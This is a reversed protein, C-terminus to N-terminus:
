SNFFGELSPNLFVSVKERDEEAARDWLMNAYALKSEWLEPKYKEAVAATLEAVFAMYIRRPADLTQGGVPDADQVERMRYAIFAYTSNPPPVQWVVITPQLTRQFLYTTPRGEDGKVSIGAYDTRSVAGLITDQPTAGTPQTNVALQGGNMFQQDTTAAAGGPAFTFSYSTPASLVTYPGELVFGGVTTDIAPDYSDGAHLGHNPLYATVTPSGAATVFCTTAGQNQQTELAPVTAAFQVLDPSLVADVISFNQFVLGGVSVPCVWFIPDGPLLGHNVWRLIFETSGAVSSLTNSGPQQVAVDGYVQNIIVDGNQDLVPILANGLDIAAGSSMSYERLYCDLLNVTNRPILYEAVGPQLPIMIDPDGIEWQNTGRNSYDQLILNASRRAEIVHEAGVQAGRM